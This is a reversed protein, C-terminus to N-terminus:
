PSTRLLHDAVAKAAVRNGSETWHVDLWYYLRDASTKAARQLPTSIDLCPISERLTLHDCFAADFEQQADVDRVGLHRWRSEDESHVAYSLPFFVVLVEAAARRTEVRLARYFDLSDIVSPDDLSFDRQARMERGAGHIEDPEEPDGFKADLRTYLIWSYFVIASSKAQERLKRLPSADSDILYGEPTVGHPSRERNTVAMSGFIFHIVLDPQFKRGEHRFWNLHPGPGLSSVGANILQVRQAGGFGGRELLGELLHGASAEYDVGWGFAFSPGLLLIRTTDPPPNLAYSGGGQAVGM